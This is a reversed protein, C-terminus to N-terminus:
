PSAPPKVRMLHLAIRKEKGTRVTDIMEFGADEAVKEFHGISYKFANVLPYTDNKRLTFPVGGIMIQKDVKSVANLTLLSRAPDWKIRHQFDDGNLNTTDLDREMRHMISLAAKECMKHRYAKMLSKEDTNIDQTIVVYGEPGVIDRINDLYSQLAYEPKYGKVSSANFLTGGFVLMVPCGQTPITLNDETFDSVVPHSPINLSGTVSRAADCAFSPAIDLAKYELIQRKGSPTATAARNFARLFALTKERVAHNEGPGLEIFSVEDPLSAAIKKASAQILNREERYLYYNPATDIFKEWYEAGRAKDQPTQARTFAYRAMHGSRDGSFLNITDILFRNKKCGQPLSAQCPQKSDSMIVKRAAQVRPAPM